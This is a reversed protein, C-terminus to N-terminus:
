AGFFGSMGFPDTATSGGGGAAVQVESAIALWTAGTTWSANPTLDATSAHYITQLRTSETGAPDALETYGAGPTMAEAAQMKATAMLPRNDASAFANLTRESTNDSGTATLSNANVCIDSAHGGTVGTVHVFCRLQTQGSFDVALTYAGPGAGSIQAVFRTLKRVATDSAQAEQVYSLSGGSLGPTNATGSVVQSFVDIILWSNAAPASVSVNYSTADTSDVAAALNTFALAM